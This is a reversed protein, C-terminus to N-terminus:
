ATRTASQRERVLLWIAVSSLGVTVAAAAAQAGAAAGFAPIAALADIARTGFALPRGWGAGRAIGLVSVLTLVGLVGVAIGVGALNDDSDFLLPVAALDSVACVVLAALCARTGM